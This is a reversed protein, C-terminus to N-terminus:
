ADFSFVAIPESTPEPSGGAPEVTIGVATATAADGDLLLTQDPDVPM